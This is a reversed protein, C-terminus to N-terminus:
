TLFSLSHSTLFYSGLDQSEWNLARGEVKYCQPKGCVLFHEWVNVQCLRM